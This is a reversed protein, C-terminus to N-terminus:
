RGTLISVCNVQCDGHMRKGCSCIREEEPIDWYGQHCYVIRGSKATEVTAETNHFGYLCSPFFLFETSETLALQGNAETRIYDM